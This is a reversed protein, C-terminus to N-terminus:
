RFSLVTVVVTLVYGYSSFLIDWTEFQKIMVTEYIYKRPPHRKFRKYESNLYLKTM